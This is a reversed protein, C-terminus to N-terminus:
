SVRTVFDSPFGEVVIPGGYDKVKIVVRNYRKLGFLGISQSFKEEVCKGACLVLCECAIQESDPM